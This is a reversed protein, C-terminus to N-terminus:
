SKLVKALVGGNLVTEVELTLRSIAEKIELLLNYDPHDKIREFPITQYTNIIGNLMERAHKEREPTMGMGTINDLDALLGQLLSGFGKFYYKGRETLEQQLKEVTNNKHFEEM